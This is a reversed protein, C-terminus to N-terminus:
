ESLIPPLKLTLLEYNIKIWVLICPLVKITYPIFFNNRLSAPFIDTPSLSTLIFTLILLTYDLKSPEKKTFFWIAVGAIAIIFTASEAMHNFIIVWILISSLFLSKYRSSKYLKFRLLPICFTIMGILLVITKYNVGVNFWSQLIGMVSFKMLVSHDNQLLNLWSKYLFILQDYPVVILPLVGLLISWLIVYLSSKNKNPYFLFIALAVIGFLKIFVTSIILLTAVAIKNKEIALYALIILGAILANCQSNQTSTILEILVFILAIYKYNKNAFPLKWFAYFFVGINLLNWVLLGFFNPLPSIIGMVLAFTPSYKFLDQHEHLFLQYIDSGNILHYFSQKFILFNNYGSWGDSNLPLFYKQVTIGVAVLLFLLIFFKKNTIVEIIKSM